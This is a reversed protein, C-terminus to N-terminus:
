TSNRQKCEIRSIKLNEEQNKGMSWGNNLLTNNLNSLIKYAKYNQKAQQVAFNLFFFISM